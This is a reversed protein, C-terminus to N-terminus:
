PRIELGAAGYPIVIEFLRRLSESPQLIVVPHSRSLNLLVQFGSSDMFTVDSLDLALESGRDREAKLIGALRDANSMDIEGVLRLRGPSRTRVIDLMEAGVRLNADRDAPTATYLTEGKL